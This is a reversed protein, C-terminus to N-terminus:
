DQKVSFASMKIFQVESEKHTKYWKSGTEPLTESMDLFARLQSKPFNSLVDCCM